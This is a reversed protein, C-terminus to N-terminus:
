YTSSTEKPQDSVSNKPYIRIRDFGPLYGDKVAVLLYRGKETFTYALKGDDGTKGILFGKDKAVAAYREDAGDRRRADPERLGPDPEVADMKVAYVDAGVVVVPKVATKTAEQVKATEAAKVQGPAKLRDGGNSNRVHSMIKGLGIASRVISRETVTITIEQGPAASAPATVNLKRKLEKVVHVRTFGPVFGDKVAVLIYNDAETFTYSLVGDDGTTGTLIGGNAAAAAYNGMMARVGSVNDSAMLKRMAEAKVQYVSVGSEPKGSHKEVVQLTFPQSVEITQPARIGLAPKAATRNSLDTSNDAMAMGGPLLFTLSVFVAALICFIKKMIIIHNVEV